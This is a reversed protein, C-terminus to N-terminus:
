LREDGLENRRRKHAIRCGVFATQVYREDALNNSQGQKTRSLLKRPAEGSKAVKCLPAYFYTMAALICDTTARYKHVTDPTYRRFAEDIRGTSEPNRYRFGEGLVGELLREKQAPISLIGLIEPWVIDM